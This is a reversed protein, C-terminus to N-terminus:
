WYIWEFKSKGITIADLDIMHFKGFMIRVAFRVQRRHVELQVAREQEIHETVRKLDDNARNM